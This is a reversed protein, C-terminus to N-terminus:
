FGIALLLAVRCQVVSVEAVINDDGDVSEVVCWVPVLLLTLMALVSDRQADPIAYSQWSEEGGAM